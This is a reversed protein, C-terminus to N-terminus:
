DSRGSLMRSINALPVSIQATEHGLTYALDPNLGGGGSTDLEIDGEITVGELAEVDGMDKFMDTIESMKIKKTM